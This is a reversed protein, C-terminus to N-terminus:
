RSLFRTAVWGEVGDGEVRILTWGNGSDALAVSVEEDLALQGVVAAGTSPGARVNLSTATVRATQAPTRDLPQAAPQALSVFEPAPVADPEADPPAETVSAQLAAGETVGQTTTEPATAAPGSGPAPTAAQAAATTDRLAIRAPESAQATPEPAPRTEPVFDAGGSMEYYGWGLFLVTLLIFKKM